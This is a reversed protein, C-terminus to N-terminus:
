HLNLCEFFDRIPSFKFDKLLCCLKAETSRLNYYHRKLLLPLKIKPQDTDLDWPHVWLLVSKGQNNFRKIFYKTACYPFLRTFFGGSFPFNNNLIRITTMPFEYLKKGDKRRIEYPFRPSNPLGFLYNKSPSISSDYALGEELIIDLAWLSKETITWAPARHGIVKQATISELIDISLRLEKRFEDEGMKYIFRHSYGHTAVEHGRESIDKVMAPHREAEFGLIFFTAKVEYADLIKLLKGVNKEVRSEFKNWQSYPINEIAQYWDEVDVTLLNVM